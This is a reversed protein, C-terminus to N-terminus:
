DETSVCRSGNRSTPLRNRKPTCIYKRHSKRTGRRNLYMFMRVRHSSCYLYMNLTGRWVVVYQAIPYLM